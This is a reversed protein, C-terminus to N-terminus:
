CRGWCGRAMIQLYPPGPVTGLLCEPFLMCNMCTQSPSPNLLVARAAGSAMDWKSPFLTHEARPLPNFFIIVRLMQLNNTSKFFDGDENRGLPGLEAGPSLSTNLAGVGQGPLQEMVIHM